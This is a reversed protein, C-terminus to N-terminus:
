NNRSYIFDTLALLNNRDGDLEAGTLTARARSHSQTAM